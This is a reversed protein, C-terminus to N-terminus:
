SVGKMSPTACDPGIEEFAQAVTQFLPARSRAMPGIVQVRWGRDLAVSCADM